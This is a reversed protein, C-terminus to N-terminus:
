SAMVHSYHVIIYCWVDPMSAFSTNAMYVLIASIRQRSDDRKSWASLEIILDISNAEGSRNTSPLKANMCSKKM